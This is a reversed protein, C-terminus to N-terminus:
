GYFFLRPIEQRFEPRGIEEQVIESFSLVGCIRSTRASHCPHEKHSRLLPFSPTQAFRIIEPM